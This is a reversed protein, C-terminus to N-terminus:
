KFKTIVFSQLLVIILYGALSLYTIQALGFSMIILSGLYSGITVGLQIGSGNLSLVFNADQHTLQIIGINMHLGTLCASFYLLVIFLVNLYANSAFLILLLVSITQLIAGFFMSKKYGIKDSLYGSVNNGFFTAFGIFVLIVTMWKELEPFREIMFPTAYTMIVGYAIFMFITYTYILLVEPNKLYKFEDKIHPREHHAKDKPLKLYFIYTVIVTVFAFVYFLVRWSVIDVLLRTLPIGIILSVTTGTILFALSRGQKGAESLSLVTAFSLIGYSNLSLGNLFRAILVLEYSKAYGIMALTLASALLLALILTKRNVKAFVLLVLPSGFAAGLTSSTILLGADAISVSLDLAIKDLIGNFIFNAMGIVFSMLAFVYIITQTKKM